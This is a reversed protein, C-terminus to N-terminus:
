IIIQHPIIAIITEKDILIGLSLLVVITISRFVLKRSFKEESLFIVSILAIIITFSFGYITKQLLEEYNYLVYNLFKFYFSNSMPGKAQGLVMKPEEPEFSMEESVVVPNEQEVITTPAEEETEKIEETIDVNGGINVPNNIKIPQVKQTGFLQVVVITDNSGFGELVAIGIEKYKPNLLNEKHSSSNLWAIYVEKSDLFGIALNEGAYNYDYNVESFWYWPTVGTPSIHSFYQNQVMNQAKLLAAQDLKKNESLTNLGLAERDQNVFDILASKTIDAFFINQSFNFGVAVTFIKFVLVLIVCYLLINSELIRKFFKSDLILKRNM